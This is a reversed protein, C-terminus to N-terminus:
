YSIMQPPPFKLAYKELPLPYKTQFAINEVDPCGLKLTEVSTRLPPREDLRSPTNKSYFEMFAKYSKIDPPDVAQPHLKLLTNFLYV